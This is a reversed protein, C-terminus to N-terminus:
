RDESAALVSELAPQLRDTLASAEPLAARDALVAVGLSDGFSWATVNLGLGELLPGVSYLEALRAGGVYLDGRPGRVNSVILNTPPTLVDALALGAYARYGWNYPGPPTFEAWSQMVGSGLADHAAKAAASGEHVRIVRDSMDHGDTALTTILHSLHNGTMRDRGGEGLPVSALLPKSPAEGVSELFARVAEGVVALLVDNLSVGFAAKADKFSQLPLKTTAFTRGRTLKRNFRTRESSFPRPLNPLLRVRERVRMGAKLTSAVLSPLKKLREVQDVAAEKLLDATSPLGAPLAANDGKPGPAHPDGSMVAALMASSAVGDAVAHHLKTVYAVRGEALGEVIWVEWLPRHRELPTQAIDGVVRDLDASGGPQAAARLHLHQDLDFAPDDVWVPHHLGLPTEVIRQRFRPLLHIRRQLEDHLRKLRAVGDAEDPPEVVIVKLTHMMTTATESYLFTADIGQMREISVELDGLVV